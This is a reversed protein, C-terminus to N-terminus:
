KGAPASDPLAQTFRQEIFLGRHSKGAIAEGLSDAYEGSWVAQGTPLVALDDKLVRIIIKGDGLTEGSSAVMRTGSFVASDHIGNGERHAAIVTVGAATVTGDIAVGPDGPGWKATVAAAAPVPAPPAPAVPKPQPAPAPNNAAPPNAPCPKPPAIPLNNFIKSWAKPLTVGAPVCPAPANQAELPPLAAKTQAGLPPLCLGLGFTAAVAAIHRKKFM